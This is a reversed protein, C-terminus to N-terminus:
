AGFTAASRAIEAVRRAAAEVDDLSTFPGVSFRVAGRNITHQAQHAWAACHLGARTLILHQELEHAVHAPDLDAVNICVLGARMDARRTGYIEVGPIEAFADLLYQMMQVEHSRIAAVTRASIWRLAALLGACGPGNMTGSEMTEPWGDPHTDSESFSGTGGHRLPEIELGPRVYLAGTGQPGLLGKHGTVAVMDLGWEDIELPLAGASQSADVLVPLGHAHAAAAMERVPVIEGTVNSAHVMVLLRTKPTLFRPLDAPSAGIGPVHPLKTLTAGRNKELYRLTRAVANHEISTTLVHDGPKIFGKLAMNIADTANFTIAWRTPERTGLLDSMARRVEYLLQSAAVAFTHTGRGASGAVTAINESVAEAVQAPKPFSTAANDLYIVQRGHAPVTPNDHQGTEM